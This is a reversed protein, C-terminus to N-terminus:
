EQALKETKPAAGDYCQLRMEVPQDTQNNIVIWTVSAPLSVTRELISEKSDVFLILGGKEKEEKITQDDRRQISQYVKDTVIMATFPGQSTIRFSINGGAKPLIQRNWDKQAPVNRTGDLFPM